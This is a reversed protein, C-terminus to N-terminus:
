GFIDLSFFAGLKPVKQLGRFDKPAYRYGMSIIYVELKKKKNQRESERKIKVLLVYIKGWFHEM